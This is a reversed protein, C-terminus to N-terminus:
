ATIAAADSSIVPVALLSTGLTQCPRGIKEAQTLSGLAASGDDHLSLTVRATWECLYPSSVLPTVRISEPSLERRPYHCVVPRM